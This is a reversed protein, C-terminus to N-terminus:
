SLKSTTTLRDFVSSDADSPKISQGKDYFFVAKDSQQCVWDVESCAYKDLGLAECSKIVAAPPPAGATLVQLGNPIKKLSEPPANILM